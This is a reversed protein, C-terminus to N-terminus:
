GSEEELVSVDLDNYEDLPVAEVTFEMEDHLLGCFEACKGGYYGTGRLDVDIRNTRGPIVDRKM